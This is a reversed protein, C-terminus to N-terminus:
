ALQLFKPFFQSSYDSLISCSPKGFFIKLHGALPLLFAPFDLIRSLHIVTKNPVPSTPPFM